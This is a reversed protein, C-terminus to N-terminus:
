KLEGKIVKEFEEVIRKFIKEGKEKSAKSPKGFVGSETLTEGVLYKPIEYEEDVIKDKRVFSDYLYLMLSTEAECAHMPESEIVDSIDIKTMDLFYCELEVKRCAEKIAAKHMSGLHGSVIYVKEFGSKKISNLIDKLYNLLTEFEVSITGIYRSTSICVGYYVPPLYATGTRKSLEEVIALTIDCDTSLPLHYGHEEVACVPLIVDKRKKLYEEVEKWTMRWFEVAMCIVM